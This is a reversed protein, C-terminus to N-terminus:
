LGLLFLVALAAVLALTSIGIVTGAITITTSVRDNRKDIAWYYNFLSEVQEPRYEASEGMSQLRIPPEAIEVRDITKLSVLIYIAVVPLVVLYALVAWLMPGGNGYAVAICAMALWIVLWALVRKYRRLLKTTTRYESEEVSCKEVLNRVVQALDDSGGGIATIDEVTM